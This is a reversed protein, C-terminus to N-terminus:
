LYIKVGAFLKGVFKQKLIRVLYKTIMVLFLWFYKPKVIQYDIIRVLFGFIYRLFYYITFFSLLIVVIYHKVYLVM